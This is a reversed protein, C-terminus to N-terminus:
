RESNSESDAPVSLAVSSKHVQSSLRNVAEVSIDCYRKGKLEFVQLVSAEGQVVEEEFLPAVDSMIGGVDDLLRYIISHQRIDISQEQAISQVDPSPKLNFSMVSSSTAAAFMIDAECM